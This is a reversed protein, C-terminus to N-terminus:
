KGGSQLSQDHLEVQSEIENRTKEEDQQNEQGTPKPAVAFRCGRRRLGSARFAFGFRKCSQRAFGLALETLVPTFRTRRHGDRRWGTHGEGSATVSLDIGSAVKAWLGGTRIVASYAKPIDTSVAVRISSSPALQHTQATVTIERLCVACRKVGLLDIRVFQHLGDGSQGFTEADTGDGTDELDVRVGHQAPQDLRSFM